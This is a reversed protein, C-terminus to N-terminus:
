VLLPSSTIGDEDLNPESHESGADYIATNGATTIDDIGGDDYKIKRAVAMGTLTAAAFFPYMYGAATNGYNKVLATAITPSFGASFCIGINYGLSFSTLRSKPPFKEPLWSFLPGTFFSLVLALATQALLAGVTKGSSIIWVFFPGSIATGIIGVLMLKTRGATDSWWGMLLSSINGFILAALNVWFAGPVPPDLIVEMFISMWIFTVYWGCGGLMPVLMSSFLAPLNEKRFAEKVPHKEELFSAMRSSKHESKYGEGGDGLSSEHHTSYEAVNPNHEEGVFHLLGAALAMLIGSLFPIRWGWSMLQENSLFQRLFAGVLNGLVGGLGASFSVFAGYYGWHEQFFSPISFHSLSLPSPNLSCFIFSSSHLYNSERVRVKQNQRWQTYSVQRCNAASM